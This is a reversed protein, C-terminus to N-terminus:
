RPGHSQVLSATGPRTEASTMGGVHTYLPSDIEQLRRAYEGESVAGRWHGSARFTVTVGLYIGAALGVALAPRVLWAAAPRAPRVALCDRIPCVAVCDQCSTCEVSDMRAMAHVPLRAPCVKTCKRCDICTRADRAVKLPAVRGVIGVLAGYPCLYRCWLDRVLVSGIV